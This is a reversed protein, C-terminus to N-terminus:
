LKVRTGEPDGPAKVKKKALVCVLNRRAFIRKQTDSRRRSRKKASPPNAMLSKYYYVGTRTM